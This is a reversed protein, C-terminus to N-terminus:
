TMQNAVKIIRQGALINVPNLVSWRLPGNNQRGCIRGLLEGKVLKKERQLVM